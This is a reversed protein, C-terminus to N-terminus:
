MMGWLKSGAGQPSYLRQWREWQLLHLWLGGREDSRDKQWVHNYLYYHIYGRVADILFGRIVQM